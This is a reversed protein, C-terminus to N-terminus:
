EKTMVMNCTYGGVGGVSSTTFSMNINGSSYIGNANVGYSPPTTSIVIHENSDVTAAITINSNDFNSINITYGGNTSSKTVSSIWTSDGAVHPSCNNRKCKYTGIFIDSWGKQCSIGSYGIPCVCVSGSCTGGNQCTTSGCKNKNCSTYLVSSFIGTTLLATILIYRLYKM